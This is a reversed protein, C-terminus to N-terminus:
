LSVKVWINKESNPLESLFPGTLNRSVVQMSAIQRSRCSHGSSGGPLVSVTNNHQPNQHSKGIEDDVNRM